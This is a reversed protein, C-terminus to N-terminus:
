RKRERIRTRDSALVSERRDLAPERSQPHIVSTSKRVHRRSSHALSFSRTPRRTRFLRSFSAPPAAPAPTICISHLSRPTHFNASTTSARPSPPPASHFPSDIASTSKPLSLFFIYRHFSSVSRRSARFRLSHPTHALSNMCSHGPTTSFTTPTASRHITPRRGHSWRMPPLAVPASHKTRALTGIRSATSHRPSCRLM